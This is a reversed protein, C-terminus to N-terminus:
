SIPPIVDFDLQRLLKSLQEVTVNISHSQMGRNSPASDKRFYVTVSINDGNREMELTYDGNVISTNLNM